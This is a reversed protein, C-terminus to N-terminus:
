PCTTVQTLCGDSGCQWDSYCQGATFGYDACSYTCTSSVTGADLTGGALDVGGVVALDISGSTASPAFSLTATEETSKIAYNCGLSSDITESTWTPKIMKSTSDYFKVTSFELKGAKPYQDCASVGYAELVGSFLWVYAETDGTTTLTSTNGNTTDKTVISWDCSGTTTCKSGTITGSVKDGPASKVLNGHVCSSGCSWSALSWYAGGGAPNSGWALVPQLIISGDAPEMGPFFYDLQSAAVSPVSPVVFSSTMKEAPTPATYSADEIWGEAVGPTTSVILVRPYACPSNRLSTADTTPDVGYVCSQHYYGHPTAVYDAPASSATGLTSSVMHVEVGGVTATSGPQYKQLGPGSAIQPGCGALILAVATALRVKM